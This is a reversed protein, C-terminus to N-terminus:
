WVVQAWWDDGLREGRSGGLEAWIGERMGDWRQIGCAVAVKGREIWVSWVCGAFRTTLAELSWCDYELV